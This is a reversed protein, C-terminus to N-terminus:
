VSSFSPFFKQGNSPTRRQRLPILMNPKNPQGTLFKACCLRKTSGSVAHYNRMSVLTIYSIGQSAMVKLCVPLANHSYIYKTPGINPKLREIWLITGNGKHMDATHSQFPLSSIPHNPNIFWTRHDTLMWALLSSLLDFQVPPLSCIIYSICDFCAYVGKALPPDLQTSFTCWVM